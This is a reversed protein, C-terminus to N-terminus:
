WGNNIIFAIDAFSLIESLHWKLRSSREHVETILSFYIAVKIPGVVSYTTLRKGQSVHFSVAFSMVNRHFHMTIGQVSQVKFKFSM